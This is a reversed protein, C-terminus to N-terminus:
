EAAQRMVREGPLWVSVTTGAGPTSDIELRGGHLEVLRKTLPLGLGTGEHRRTLGADVQGFPQLAVVIDDPTMGVGTDSVAFLMGDPALTVTVQVKGHAPTFKVANSLLNVLVQKLRTESGTIAPLNPPVAFDLRVDGDVARHRVLTVAAEVLDAVDVPSNDIDVRGAEIKSLDLIDSVVGLLHQGSSEIHEAYERYRTNGIPGLLEQRLVEAFGIIANLPTRLEHSMNALFQSKARDALRAEDVAEALTEREARLQAAMDNFSAGLERLELPSFAAATPVKATMDGDAFARSARAVQQIPRVLFGALFWSGIGAVLLGLGAVGLALERVTGARDVLESLPQPVMVGWGTGSVTSFGAIMDDQMAPSFFQGVGTEGAMMRQVVPIRSIDRMEDEWDAKPHAMVRGDADVIAAHGLRGFAVAAQLRKVYDLGLPAFAIRGDGLDRVVQIVPRGKPDRVVGSFRPMERAGNALAALPALMAEPVRDPPRDVVNLRFLVLGDAAIVCFHQFGLDRALQELGAHPHGQVGPDRAFDTFLNFGSRVDRTYRELALTLNRAVLLHREQVSDLESQLATRQVWIALFLVPVLAVAIFGVTLLARM